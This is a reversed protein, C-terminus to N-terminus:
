KVFKDVRNLKENNLFSRINDCIIKLCRSRSEFAGWACHPTLLVNDMHMISNFAHNEGFPEVTYVDSGFGGIKGSKIGSVIDQDCVVAGRAENVIIVGDKMLDIKEKSILGRTADNLPCHITIIDSERCLTNIDVCVYEDIPTRKNAIVKAGMAEAVKAVSKGRNGLGIIGWTKGALEHFVPELKNPIGSKTYEGTTVYRNYERIRSALALVTAVTYLVVSDTSYGPVNCVGIGIDGAAVTDVNDFGTAFICILKLRPCKLMLEKTIKIKNIVIVDADALRCELESDETSNYVYVEGFDRLPTLDLDMGLSKYDLVKINM